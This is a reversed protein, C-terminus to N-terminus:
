VRVISLARRRRFRSGASGRGVLRRSCRRWGLRVALEAAASQLFSYTRMLVKLLVYGINTVEFILISARLRPSLATTDVKARAWPDGAAGAAPGAFIPMTLM